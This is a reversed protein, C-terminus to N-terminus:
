ASAKLKKERAARLVNKIERVVEEHPIDPSKDALAEEVGARFWADYGPEPEGYEATQAAFAHENQLILLQEALWDRQEPPLQMAEEFIKKADPSM